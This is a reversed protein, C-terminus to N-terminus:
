SSIEVEVGLAWARAATSAQIARLEGGDKRQPVPVPVFGRNGLRWSLSQDSAGAIWTSGPASSLGYAFM